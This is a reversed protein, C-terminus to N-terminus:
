SRSQAPASPQSQNPQPQQAPVLHKQLEARADQPTIMLIRDGPQLITDPRVTMVSKGRLVGIITSNALTGTLHRSRIQKGAWPSEPRLAGVVLQSGDPLDLGLGSQLLNALHLHTVESPLTIQGRELLRLAVRVQEARHAPSDIRGAVQAEYLSGYKFLSSLQRQILFSLTLALAAPVLLQYGGTMEAVMLLTAIPVRAAAGFVSAMGVIVFGQAPQHFIVAFAGGLMAGVFLSPAFVGGSGGSSVTLALAVMKAVLLILLLHLVMKGDIAEQIWGYGGALVQPLRLAMLGLALGGLGPKTWSPIRIAAFVDRMGYFIQPFVAAVLGSAGGLAIYRGYDSIGKVGLNSSVHFLPQWGVFAANVAYAVIASLMCYLLAEAEFETGGYLVQVAFIATGIPSRFIAALGAAMGMLILYRSDQQGRRFLKAYVSGFGAAILAIPGERGACGGSGITVASAIMKVPAVRARIVGATWHFARVVTDTGHGETEPALGYVLAGSILGGLTTSLPILWLGHPGIAQPRIGGRLLVDPPRYGAIGILFIRFCLNLMWMFVQAGLGGIIGLVVSDLLLFAKNGDPRSSRSAMSP